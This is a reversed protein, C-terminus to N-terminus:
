DYNVVIKSLGMLGAVGIWERRVIGLEEAKRYIDREQDSLSGYYLGNMNRVERELEEKTM